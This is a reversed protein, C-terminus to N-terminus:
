CRCASCPRCLGCLSLTLMSVWLMTKNPESVAADIAAHHESVIRMGAVGTKLGRISQPHEWRTDRLKPRHILFMHLECTLPNCASCQKFM